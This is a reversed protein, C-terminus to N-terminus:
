KASAKILKAEDDALMISCANYLKGIAVLQGNAKALEGQLQAIQADKSSQVAKDVAASGLAIFGLAILGILKYRDM